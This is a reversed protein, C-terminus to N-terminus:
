LNKHQFYDSFDWKCHPGQSIDANRLLVFIELRNGSNFFARSDGSTKHHLHLVGVRLTGHQGVSPFVRDWGYIRLHPIAQAWGSPFLPFWPFHLPPTCGGQGARSSHPPPNASSRPKVIWATLIPTRSSGGRAAPQVHTHQSCKQLVNWRCKYSPNNEWQAWKAEQKDKLSKM